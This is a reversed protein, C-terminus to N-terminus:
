DGSQTASPSGSTPMAEGNDAWFEPGGALKYSGHFYIYSLGFGVRLILLGVDRYRDIANM